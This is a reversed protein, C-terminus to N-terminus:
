VPTCDTCNENVSVGKEIIFRFDEPRDFVEISVDNRHRRALFDVTSGNVELKRIRVNELWEPLHPNKLTIKKKTLDIDLGLCAKLLLFISAASWAQPSCAVPYLTPGQHARKRFGCYLEPFRNLETFQSMHFFADLIASAYRNFGYRSFGEAILANDHPWISGNHYSMPNYRIQDAALTRIGWGSFFHENMLLEAIKYARESSSIGAFLCHGMNSGKVRCPRKKSDLALIYSNMKDDWFTLEFKERLKEAEERFFFSKQRYGLHEALFAAEKKAAYVYGQIECMAVPAEAITGDEHFVADRSDKWGQNELGHESKKKYEVFGDQDADGYRDIWHIAREIHPWVSGIFDLDGTRKFYYGALIVFLPTADASGYYRSFPLEGTNTMEGMRVEHLIKGPEADQDINISESQEKALYSLVSHGIRPNFWLMELATILGDRGFPANFWPIGAYPYLIGNECTLLMRLDSIARELLINFHENSTSINCEMEGATKLSGSSDRYAQEYSLSNNDGSEGSHCSVTITFRLEENVDLSVLYSASGAAMYDPKRSFEIRTRRFIGDLGSYFFEIINESVAPPKFSGRKNRKIGRVEFVDVFDADFAFDMHFEAPYLGYNKLRYNEYCRGNWLFKSRFIHLTGRPIQRGDELFLHPNTLDVTVLHNNRTVDSSLLLLPQSEITVLYYSLFRTGKCYIGQPDSNRRCIDGHIDFVAFTDAQKIIRHREDAVGPESVMVYDESALSEVM